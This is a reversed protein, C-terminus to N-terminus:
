ASEARRGRYGLQQAVFADFGALLPRFKEPGAELRMLAACSAELTSLQDSGHAKRIRYNSVPLGQLSLRPLRGLWPNLHLMKRSKRWTGDLVILRLQTPDPLLAADAISLRPALPILCTPQDLLQGQALDQPTGPYLLIDQRAPCALAKEDFIEGTVMRSFPLSLHLLRASGKANDLELPHQLILVEVEHAVPAIWQCICASQPRRCHACVQRKVHSANLV